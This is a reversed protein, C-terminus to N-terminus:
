VEENKKDLSTLRPSRDPVKFLPLFSHRATYILFFFWHLSSFIVSSIPIFSCVFVNTHGRNYYLTCMCGTYSMLLCCSFLRPAKCMRRGWLFLLSRGKTRKKRWFAYIPEDKPQMNLMSRHETNTSTTPVHKAPMM